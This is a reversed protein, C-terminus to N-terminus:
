GNGSELTREPYGASRKGCTECHLNYVIKCGHVGQSRNVSVRTNGCTPCKFNTTEFGTISM